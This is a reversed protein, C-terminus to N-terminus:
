VALRLSPQFPKDIKDLKKLNDLAWLPRLNRLEWCRKFDVDEPIEFNFAAIPIRHDIHWQGYNAWTMGPLFQKEIHIKLQDVTYGVLTEWHRGAKAGKKLSQYMGGSMSSALRGKATSRRKRFRAAESVRQEPTLPHLKRYRRTRECCQEKHATAWLKSTKKTQEVHIMRYKKNYEKLAERRSDRYKKECAKCACYLGLHDHVRYESIPKIEKCSTCRKNQTKETGMM